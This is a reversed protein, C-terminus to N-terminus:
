PPPLALVVSGDWGTRTANLSLHAETPVTRANSRAQVLWEALATASTDKLTVTAREGIVTLQATSGLGQKVSLDLAKRSDGTNLRPQTQLSAAEATLARMTQLQADLSRHRAEAHRLTDLAPAVGVWWLTAVVVVSLASGLLWRERSALAAWVTRGRQWTTSFYSSVNANM